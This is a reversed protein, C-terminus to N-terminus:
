ALIILVMYIIGYAVTSVAKHEFANQMNQLLISFITLLILSGLLKGHVLLEHFLFKLLGLLYAKLSFQKEGKIFELFSGKQSEPL